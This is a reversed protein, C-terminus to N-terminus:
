LKNVWELSLSFSEATQEYSLIGKKLLNIATNINVIEAEEERQTTIDDEYNIKGFYM